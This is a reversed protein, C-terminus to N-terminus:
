GSVLAVADVALPEDLDIVFWELRKVVLAKVTLAGRITKADPDVRVALDYYKVDYGAQEPLLPGGSGTPKFGLKRQPGAALGTATVLALCVAALLAHRPM